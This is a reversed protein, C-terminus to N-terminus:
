EVGYIEKIEENNSDRDNSEAVSSGHLFDRNGVSEKACDSDSYIENEVENFEHKMLCDRCIIRAHGDILLDCDVGCDLCNIKWFDNRKLSNNSKM